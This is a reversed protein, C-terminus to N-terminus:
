HGLGSVERTLYRVTLIVVFAFGDTGLINDWAEGPTTNATM